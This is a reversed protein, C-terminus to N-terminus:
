KFYILNAGPITKTQVCLQVLKTPDLLFFLLMWGEGMELFIVISTSWSILNGLM